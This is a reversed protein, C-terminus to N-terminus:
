VYEYLEQLSVIRDRNADAAGRLGDLLYRRTRASARAATVSALSPFLTVATGSM